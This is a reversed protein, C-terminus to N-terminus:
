NSFSVRQWDYGATNGAFTTSTNWQQPHENMKMTIRLTTGFIIIKALQLWGHPAVWCVQQLVAGALTTHVGPLTVAM